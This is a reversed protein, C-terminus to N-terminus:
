QSPRSFVSDDDPVIWAPIKYTGNVRHVKIGSTIKPLLALIQKVIPDSEPAVVRGHRSLLIMNEKDEVASAALLPKRVGAEQLCTTGVLGNEFM